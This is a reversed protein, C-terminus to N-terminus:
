APRFLGICFSRGLEAAPSTPLGNIEIDASVAPSIPAVVRVRVEAVRRRRLVGPISERAVRLSFRNTRLPTDCDGLNRAVTQVLDHVEKGLCNLAATRKM